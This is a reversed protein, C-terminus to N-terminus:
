GCVEVMSLFLIVNAKPTSSTERLTSTRFSISRAITGGLPVGIVLTGSSAGSGPVGANGFGGPPFSGAAVGVGDIGIKLRELDDVIKEALKRGTEGVAVKRANSPFNNDGRALAEGKILANETLASQPQLIQNVLQKYDEIEEPLLIKASGTLFSM